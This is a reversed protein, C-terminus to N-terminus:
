CAVNSGAVAGAGAGLITAAQRGTGQGVQNGALAGVLAGAATTGTCRLAANDVPQACGALVLAAAFLLPAFHKL